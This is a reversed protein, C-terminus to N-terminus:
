TEKWKFKFTIADDKNEFWLGVKFEYMDNLLRATDIIFQYEVRGSCHSYLECIMNHTQTHKIMIETYNEYASEQEQKLYRIKNKAGKIRM